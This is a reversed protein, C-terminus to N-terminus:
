VSVRLDGFKGSRPGDRAHFLPSYGGCNARQISEALDRDFRQSTSVRGILFFRSHMVGARGFAFYSDM